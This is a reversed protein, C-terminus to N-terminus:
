FSWELGFTPVVDDRLGTDNVPIQFNLFVILRQIPNVKIGFSATLTDADATGGVGGPILERRDVDFAHRGILDAVFTVRGLLTYEVGVAYLFDNTVGETTGLEAGVAIRPSIGLWSGSVVILPKVRVIGTGLPPDSLELTTDSVLTSGPPLVLNPSQFRGRDGEDGSPLKVDLIAAAGIRPGPAAGSEWFRFKGRLVIDGIGTNEAENTRLNDQRIFILGCNSFDAAVPTGCDRFAYRQPQERIRARIIPIILGVDLRDTVGYLAGVTGVDLEVDENFNLFSLRTGPVAEAAVLQASLSRDRLSVGDVDDFTYRSYSTTLTFVGRGTTEARDTFIPGLDETTRTFVGTAPDFRYTFSGGSPNPVNGVAETLGSFLARRLETLVPAASTFQAAADRAAGPGGTLLAALGALLLTTGGGVRSRETM